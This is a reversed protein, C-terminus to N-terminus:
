GRVARIRESPSEGLEEEVLEASVEFCGEVEVELLIGFWTPGDTSWRVESVGRSTSPSTRVIDDDRECSALIMSGEKISLAVIGVAPISSADVTIWGGELQVIGEDAVSPVIDGVAVILPFPFM